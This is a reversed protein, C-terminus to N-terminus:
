GPSATSCGQSMRSPSALPMRRRVRFRGRLRVRLRLRLRVRVRVRVLGRESHVRLARALTEPTVGLIRAHEAAVAKAADLLTSGPLYSMVLVMDSVLGPISRPM